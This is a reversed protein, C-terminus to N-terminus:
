FRALTDVWAWNKKVSGGTIEKVNKKYADM